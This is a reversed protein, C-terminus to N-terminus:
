GEQDDEPNIFQPSCQDPTGKPTPCFYGVWEGRAGNGSRRVREGHVCDASAEEYTLRPKSGGRGGSSAQQKKRGYSSQGGNGRQRAPAAAEAQAEQAPEGSGGPTPAPARGSPNAVNAVAQFQANAEAVAQLLTYEGDLNVGLAAIADAAEDASDANIVIWPQVASAGKLSITLLKDSM